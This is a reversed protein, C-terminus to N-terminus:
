MRGKARQRILRRVERAEKNDPDLRLAQNLDALGIRHKGQMSLAYGRLIYAMANDPSLEIEKSLDAVARAYGGKETYAAGRHYHAGPFDSETEIVKNFDAIALDHQETEHYACGRIYVASIDDAIEERTLDAIASDYDRQTFYALGRSVYAHASNEPDLELALTFDAVAAKGDGQKVLADGRHYHLVSMLPKSATVKLAETVASVVEDWKEAGRLKLLERTFSEGGDDMPGAAEASKLESLDFPKGDPTIVAAGRKEAQELIFHLTDRAAENEPDLRLASKVDAIAKQTEGQENYVSARMSYMVPNDPSLEIAKDLDALGRAHDEKFLYSVGRHYHAEAIGPESEICRTLEAIALDHEGKEHRAVGRIYTAGMNDAAEERSADAIAADYDGQKLYAMGRSAYDSAAEDPDLELARTFDAVASKTNELSLHANGRVRLLLAKEVEDEIGPLAGTVLAAVGRWDKGLQFELLKQPFSDDGDDNGGDGDDTTTKERGSKSGPSFLEPNLQMAKGYDAAAKDQKGTKGHCYARLAYIEGGEPDLEAAKNLDAIALAYEEREVRVEARHFYPEDDEDDLEIARTFDAIALDNKGQEHYARGRGCYAEPLKDIELARTFDAIALDHEGKEFRSSARQFYPDSFSDDLEIARTFDAIASDYEGKVFYSFGRENRTDREKAMGREGECEFELARTFDAIASDHEGLGARAIGRVAYLVAKDIDSKREPLMATAMKAAEDFREDDVIDVLERAWAATEADDWWLM